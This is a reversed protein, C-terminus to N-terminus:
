KHLHLRYGRRHSMRLIVCLSVQILGTTHCAHLWEHIAGAGIDQKLLAHAEAWPAAKQACSLNARTEKLSGCLCGPPASDTRSAKLPTRQCMRFLLPKLFQLCKDCLTHTACPIWVPAQRLHPAQVSRQTSQFCVAEPLWGNVHNAQVPTTVPNCGKLGTVLPLHCLSSCHLVHPPWLSSLLLLPTLCGTSWLRGGAWTLNSCSLWHSLLLQYIRRFHNWRFCFVISRDNELSVVKLM